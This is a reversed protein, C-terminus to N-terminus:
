SQQEVSSDSISKIANQIIEQQEKVREEDERRKAIKGEVDKQEEKIAESLEAIDLGKIRSVPVKMGNDKGDPFDYLMNTEEFTYDRTRSELTASDPRWASKDTISDCESGKMIIGRPYENYPFKDLLPIQGTSNITQFYVYNAM